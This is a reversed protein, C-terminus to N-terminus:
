RSQESSSSPKSEKACAGDPLRISVPWVQCQPRGPPQSQRRDTGQASTRDEDHFHDHHRRLLRRGAHDLRRFHGSEVPHAVASHCHRYQRRLRRDPRRLGIQATRSPWNQDSLGPHHRRYPRSRSGRAVNHHLSAADTSFEIIAVRNCSLRSAWKLLFLRGRPSADVFSNRTTLVKAESLDM